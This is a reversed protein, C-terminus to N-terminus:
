GTAIGGTSGTGGLGPVLALLTLLVALNEGGAWGFGGTRGSRRKRRQRRIGWGPCLSWWFGGAPVFGALGSRLAAPDPDISPKTEVPGGVCFTPRPQGSLDDLGRGALLNDDLLIAGQVQQHMGLNGSCPRGRGWDWPRDVRRSPSPATAEGSGVTFGRRALEASRPWGGRSARHVQAWALVM